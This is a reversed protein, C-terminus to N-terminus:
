DPIRVPVNPIKFSVIGISKDYWARLLSTAFAQTPACDFLRSVVVTPLGIM